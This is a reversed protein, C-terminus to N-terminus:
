QEDTSEKINYIEDYPCQEQWVALCEGEPNNVSHWSWFKCPKDHIYCLKEAM